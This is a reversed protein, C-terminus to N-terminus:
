LRTKRGHADGARPKDQLLFQSGRGIIVANGASALEMIVKRTLQWYVLEQAYGPPVGPNLLTNINISFQRHDRM